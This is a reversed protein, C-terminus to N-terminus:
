SKEKKNNHYKDILKTGSEEKKTKEIGFGEEVQKILSPLLESATKAGDIYQKRATFDILPNGEKDTYIFDKRVDVDSMKLINHFYNQLAKAAIERAKPSYTSMKDIAIVVSEPLIKNSYNKRKEVDSIANTAATKYIIDQSLEKNIPSSECGVYWAFLIDENQMDKYIPDNAIEPYMKKLSKGNKPGFLIPYEEINFLEQKSM